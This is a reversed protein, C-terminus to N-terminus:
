HYKTNNFPLHIRVNGLKINFFSVIPIASLLNESYKSGNILMNDYFLSNAIEAIEKQCRYQTRLQLPKINSSLREFLTLELGTIGVDASPLTPPLQKPDGILLCKQCGFSALPLLSTTETMQSCEDLITIPFSLFNSSQDRKYIGTM